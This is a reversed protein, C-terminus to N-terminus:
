LRRGEQLHRCQFQAEIKNTMEQSFLGWGQLKHFQGENEKHHKGRPHDRPSDFTSIQNGYVNEQLGSTWTVFPMSRSSPSM